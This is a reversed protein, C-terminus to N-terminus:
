IASAQELAQDIKSAKSKTLARSPLIKKVADVGLLAARVLRVTRPTHLCEFTNRRQHIDDEALLQDCAEQLSIKRADVQKCAETVLDRKRSLMTWDNSRVDYIKMQTDLYDLVFHLPNLRYVEPCSEILEERGQSFIASTSLRRRHIHQSGDTHRIATQRSPSLATMEACTKAIMHRIWSQVRKEDLFEADEVELGKEGEEYFALFFTSFLSRYYFLMQTDLPFKGMTRVHSDSDLDTEITLKRPNFDPTSESSSPVPPTSPSDSKSESEEDVEQLELFDMVSDQTLNYTEDSFKKLVSLDFGHLSLWYVLMPSHHNKGLEEQKQAALERLKLKIQDTGDREISVEPIILRKSRLDKLLIRIAFSEMKRIREIKAEEELAPDAWIESLNFLRAAHFTEINEEVAKKERPSPTRTFKYFETESMLEVFRGWNPELFDYSSVKASM